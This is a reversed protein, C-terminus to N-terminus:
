GVVDVVLHASADAHLCVAGDTGLRAPVVNAVTDGTAVNLNSATPREVGAPHVTVFGDTRAEVATVNLLAAGAHEPVGARGAVDLQLTSQQPRLGAGSFRGDITSGPARTDLLRRPRDLTAYTTAPITAAVDVILHDAASTHLCVTGDADVRSVVANAITEGAAHNLSSANPRDGDCPFVTVFGPEDGGVATVSLAVVLPSDGAPEPLGGRGAVDLTLTSGPERVGIGEFRGDITSTSERTDLLRQPADLANVAGAPFYGTVDVVLHAATSTHVCIAGDAGIRALAGVAITDGSAVNLNSANPRDEGCPFLTVFGAQAAEVATVNVAITDADAPVGVRGAIPVVLTSGPEPRGDGVLQGDAT